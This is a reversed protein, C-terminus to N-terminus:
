PYSAYYGRFIIKHNNISADYGQRLDKSDTIGKGEIM